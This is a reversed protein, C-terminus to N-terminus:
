QAKWPRFGMRRENGGVRVHDYAIGLYYATTNEWPRPTKSWYTGIVGVSIYTGGLYYGQAPLYFYSSINAPKGLSISRNSQDAITLTKTYDVGDPAVASQYGSIYDKKKFWMGGAYLHGMTTWLTIDWHPDGRQAYWLLENVNPCDACSRVAYSIVPPTSPSLSPRYGMVMNYWRKNKDKKDKPYNENNDDNLKPQYNEFGKWYHNGVIADWMYYVNSPYDIPNINATIPYVTNASYTASSIEKTFIGKVNTKNDYLTYEITLAHTGPAIVIYAANTSQSTEPNNLPFGYFFESSQANTKTTLTITNSSGNGELGSKTLTYTGAINNDSIVKIQQVYTSVLGNPTRPLLCLYAAKHDLNFKYTGNPQKHATATGCDGCKGLHASNNPASQMQATAITVQNYTTANQGPYYVDVTSSSYGKTLKFHATPSKTTIQAEGSAGDATWIKDGKEWFYKVSFGGPYTIDLSTRTASKAKTDIDIGGVFTADPTTEKNNEKPNNNVGEENTCAVTFIMLIVVVLKSLFSIVNM